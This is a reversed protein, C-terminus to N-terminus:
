KNNISSIEANRFNIFVCTYIHKDSTSFCKLIYVSIANLLIVVLCNYFGYFLDINQAPLLLGRTYATSRHEEHLSRLTYSFVIYRTVKVCNSTGYKLLTLLIFWLRLVFVLNVYIYRPPYSFQQQQQSSKRFNPIFNLVHTM